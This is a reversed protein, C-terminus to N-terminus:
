AAMGRSFPLTRVRKGTAKFVANAVAPGIPPLGPEGVGTPAAESPVIHVEIEPMQDIRLPTYTDYNEQDVVGETMTIEEALIAGLGFGIGGEMQAVVQDPNIAVGCDVACVVKEVKVQDPSPLSIEAIQAVVTGFAEVVAVGRFRGEALPSGWGAKEAVLALAASHRPHNELLEMRLEVPDKGAAEAVEDMFAEVAYGTHTSGVARWFLIPVPSQMNTVGVNVNPIHYPITNAGEVSSWDVGDHVLASEFVTGMAISQSVIHNDWGIINGDADLAAKMAHVVAPRYRGGKMDNERTWQVKVPHAWNLAKAVEVAEAVIDADMVGRRGFGGGTRMVNLKVKDPAVGAIESAIYQYLDPMQHGGWVELVGDTMRAAANLPEMAAHCLYPFTFTAEVTRAAEAFAASVDGDNRASHAPAAASQEVFAALIEDTGRTEANEENWTVDVLDRAKIATWMNDAVVAVGRPIQVVDVVGKLAKAETADFAEVTAGFKPPHIMVATMMGPLKLDITYPATGDTKMKSDYRKLSADGIQTWESAPKLPIEDPPAIDAAKMAMEGYTATKGSAHTLVGNGATIEAAPVDWERAAAEVLMLRMAAGAKRYREWSTAMSSSGGTGQNAGGLALNGYASPNSAAGEVTIQSWEAGLEENVLTAIGFYAGQGMEFQSSYITVKGDPAIAIYPQFPHVAPKEQASAEGGLRFGVTLGAATALAGLLFGRRSTPLKPLNGVAKPFRAYM